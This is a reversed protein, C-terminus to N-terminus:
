LIDLRGGSGYGGDGGGYGPERPDGGYSGGGGTIPVNPPNGIPNSGGNNAVSALIPAGLEQITDDYIESRYLRATIKANLSRDVGLSEIVVPVNRVTGAGSYDSVVILDGVDHLLADGSASFDCFWDCARRKGLRIRLLRFAQHAGDVASLNIEEENEEGIQKIHAPSRDEIPVGSWDHIASRFSGKVINVSSQQDGLPWHFSNRRVRRRSAGGYAAEYDAQQQTNLGAPTSAYGYAATIRLCEELSQHALKLPEALQLFGFKAKITLTATDNWEARLYRRLREHGNITAALLGAIGIVHDGTVAGSPDTYTQATYDVTVGDIVITVKDGATVSGGITVTASAPATASGGTLTAASATANLTGTASATLTLGNGRSSYMVGRVRNVESNDLHAGILLLSEREHQWAFVDEVEIQLDDAAAAAVTYTTRAPADVRVQIKGEASFILYGNFSPLLIDYLFDGLTMQEKIVFSSTYRRRIKRNPAVFQQINSQNIYRYYAQVLQGYGGGPTKGQALMLTIRDVTSAGFGSALAFARFGALTGGNVTNWVVAQEFGTDDIVPENCIKAAEIVSENDLDAQRATGRNLLYWRAMVPGLDTWDKTTFSTDPTPFQRGRVIATVTPASDNADAPDSGVAEGEVWTIGSFKGAGPFQASAPQGSSGFSGLAVAVNDPTALYQKDRIRIEHLADTDENAFAQIFKVKAGTDAHILPIGEVQTIGGVEPVFTDEQLESVSSWPASVTRKKKKSFILLFRKQEVVEYSFTGTIPTFRFGQFNDTNEREICNNYSGGCSMANRYAAPKSALPVGGRCAEGKFDHRLPCLITMQRRLLKQNSGFDQKITLAGPDRGPKQCKGRFLILSEDPVRLSVLRLQVWMGEVRHSTVFRSMGLDINSLTLNLTNAQKGLYRNIDSRSILRREYALGRWNTATNAVRLLANAPDYIEDNQSYFEVLEVFQRADVSLNLEAQLSATATQM